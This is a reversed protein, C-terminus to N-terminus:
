RYKFWAGHFPNYPAYVPKGSDPRHAIVYVLERDLLAQLAHVLAASSSLGHKRIFAGGTPTDVEGERSIAAFLEWQGKTLASRLTAMIADQERIISRMVEVITPRELARADGFLRNFLVQVYYTHGNCWDYCFLADDKRLTRKHRKMLKCAFDAYVERGIRQLEVQDASGYFPKAANNFLDQLIHRQSGSFICHVNPSRQLETRLVADMRVEPFNAVQQFEDIALFITRKQERLIRFIERTTAEEKNTRGRELAISPQGSLEDFQVVPRLASFWAMANKLFLKPTPNLAEHVANLLVVNFAHADDAAYIDAFVTRTGRQKALHDFVHRILGTKGYRRPSFLMVHRGNRLASAIAATEAERDCFLEPSAYVNVVFPNDIMM